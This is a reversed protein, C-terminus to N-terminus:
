KAWTELPSFEGHKIRQEGEAIGTSGDNIAAETMKDLFDTLPSSGNEQEDLMALAIDKAFQEPDAIAFTRIYDGTAEDYPNAWDSYRCAHAATNIGIEITLKGREVKVALPSNIPPVSRKPSM